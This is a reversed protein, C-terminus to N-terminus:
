WLSKGKIKLLYYDYNGLMALAISVPLPAFPGLVSAVPLVACWIIFYVLSKMWMGKWMYWFITFFFAPWNWTVKFGETNFEAFKDKYYQKESPVAPLEGIVSGCHKCKVADDQVEEKCYPCKM